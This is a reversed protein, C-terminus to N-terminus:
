FRLQLTASVTRPRTRYGNLELYEQNFLNFVATQLSANPHINWNASLNFLTFGAVSQKGLAGFPGLNGVYAVDQRSGISRMDAQVLWKTNPKYRLSANVIQAPRRVTQDNLNGTIFAGNSYLQVHNNATKGANLYSPDFYLKGDNNSFNTSFTWKPGFFIDLGTEFGSNVQKGTNLYTDGRYDAFGLSNIPKSGNWLYVYDIYNDVTNHYIALRFQMVDDVLAKIGIEKSLSQEAKLDKNGRSIGSTFNREPAYSHYLSPATFGSAINGYLSVNDTFVLSAGLQYNIYSGFRNNNGARIGGEVLLQQKGLDVQWNSNIYAFATNMKAGVTDYNTKTSFNFAYNVYDTRVNMKDQVFGAGGVLKLKGQQYNLQLENTLNEGNYTGDFITRDYAIPTLSILSSDNFDRRQTKTYGGFVKVFFKENLKKSFGYTFLDRNFRLTHNEDDRFAGNAIDAIQRVGRWSVYADWDKGEFGTKLAYDAKFFNKPRNIFFGTAPPLVGNFGKNVSNTAEAQVYFGSKAAYQLGGQTNWFSTNKGFSGITNNLMGHLGLKNPKRTIINVVGGVASNGYLTGQAGRVVEVRDVNNLSVEAFDLGNDPTSADSLKIGDIMILNQRNDAGRIFLTQLSGPVQFTGPVFIGEAKQLLDALNQYAQEKIDKNSILSVSRPTNLISQASRTATVTVAKLEHITSDKQAYVATTGMMLATFINKISM